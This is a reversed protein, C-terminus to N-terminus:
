INKQIFWCTAKQNLTYIIAIFIFSIVACSFSFGLTPVAADFMTTDNPSLRDTIVAFVMVISYLFLIILPITLVWCILNFLNHLLKMLMIFLVAIFPLKCYSDSPPESDM